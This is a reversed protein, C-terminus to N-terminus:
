RTLFGVLIWSSSPRIGPRAWHTLPDSTGVLQPTPWLYPQSRTQSYSHHTPWCSCSQNSEEGPFKWIGYTARVFVFFCFWFWFWLGGYSNSIAKGTSRYLSRLSMFLFRIYSVQSTNTWDKELPSNATSKTLVLGTAKPLCGKWGESLQCDTAESWSHIWTIIHHTSM